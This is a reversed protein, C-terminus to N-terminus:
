KEHKEDQVPGGRLKRMVIYQQATSLVNFVFWYLLFAAPFDKFMITFMAPMMIAMMDQQQKQAPDLTPMVTLKQSVYMSLAYALLLITDPALLSPVWLFGLNLFTASHVGSGDSNWLFTTSLFQTKLRLLSSYLAILIPMQFILPLCGGLPNVGHEKYLAMMRKQVEQPNKKFKEQLKKIHPQLKQMDEMAKFQRRSLPALLLKVVVTLLIIALGYNGTLRYFFNLLATLGDILVEWLVGLVNM